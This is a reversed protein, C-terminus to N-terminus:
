YGERMAEDIENRISRGEEPRYTLLISAPSLKAGRVEVRMNDMWDLREGDRADEAPTAPSSRRNWDDVMQARDEETAPIMMAPEDADFVCNDSHAAYLRHWDRNSDIRAVGGCFPCPLLESM